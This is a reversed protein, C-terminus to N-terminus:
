IRGGMEDDQFYEPLILHFSIAWSSIQHTPKRALLVSEDPELIQTDFTPKKYAVIQEQTWLGRLGM